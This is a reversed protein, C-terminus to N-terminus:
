PESNFWDLVAAGDDGWMENVQQAMLRPEDVLFVNDVLEEIPPHLLFQNPSKDYDPKRIYGHGFTALAPMVSFSSIAVVTQNAMVMRAFTLAIRENRDNRVTTRAEPFHRKLHQVFESIVLRCRDLKYQVQESPRQQGDIEFPQTVIGITRVDPSIHRSFSRFKMFGFSPHNSGILDGCRFHLVADDLVTFNAYRPTSSFPLQMISGDGVQGKPSFHELAFKASPHDIHPVGVLSVAMRRLEYRISPIKYGLSIRDFNTCSEAVTPQSRNLLSVSHHVGPFYGTLWPLILDNKTAEAGECQISVDINGLAQAVMRLGYFASIYNGTGMSSKNFLGMCGFTVNVLTRNRHELGQGHLPYKCFSGTMLQHALQQLQNEGRYEIVERVPEDELILSSGFPLGPFMEGDISTAVHPSLISENTFHSIQATESSVIISDTPAIKWENHAWNLTVPFGMLLCLFAYKLWPNKSDVINDSGLSVM